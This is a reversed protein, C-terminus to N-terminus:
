IRLAAMHGGEEVQQADNRVPNQFQHLDRKDSNKKLPNLICYDGEKRGNQM